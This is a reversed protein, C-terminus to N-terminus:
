MGGSENHVHPEPMLVARKLLRASLVRGLFVPIEVLVRNWKGGPDNLFRFAWELGARRLWIPARPKDGALFDFLGGVGFCIGASLRPANQVIWSEQIPTGMGVLLIDPRLANILATVPAQEEATCHGHHVGVIRIGSFTAAIIRACRDVTDQKGGLLFVTWGHDRARALVKPLFDTGNVNERIPHGSLRGALLLGSGDPLVLDARNIHELLNPDKRAIHLSHVNVFFVIRPSRPGSEQGYSVVHQLATASDINDIRVGQIQLRQRAMM